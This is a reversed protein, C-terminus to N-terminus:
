KSLGGLQVGQYFETGNRRVRLSAAAGEGIDRIKTALAALTPVSDGNLELIVDDKQLGLWSAVTNPLVQTVQAGGGPADSGTIGLFGPNRGSPPPEEVRAGVTVNPTAANLADCMALQEPTLVQRISQQTQDDITAIADRYSQTQAERRKRLEEIAKRQADTLGPIAGDLSWVQTRYGPLTVTVCGGPQRSRAPTTTAETPAEPPLPSSVNGTSAPLVPTNALPTTSELDVPHERLPTRLIKREAAALREELLSTQNRLRVNAGALFLVLLVLVALAIKKM